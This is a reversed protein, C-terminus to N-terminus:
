SYSFLPNSDGKVSMLLINHKCVKYNDLDLFNVVYRQCICLTMNLHSCLESANCHSPTHIIYQMNWLPLLLSSSAKVMVFHYISSVSM